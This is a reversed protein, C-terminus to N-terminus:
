LSKIILKTCCDTQKPPSVQRDSEVGSRRKREMARDEEEEM